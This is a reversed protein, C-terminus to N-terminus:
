FVFGDLVLYLVALGLGLMAASYRGRYISAKERAAKMEAALMHAVANTANDQANWERRHKTGFSQKGNSM